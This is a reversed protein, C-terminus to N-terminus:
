AVTEQLPSASRPPAFGVISSCFVTPYVSLICLLVIFDLTGGRALCGPIRSRGAQLMHRAAEKTNNM